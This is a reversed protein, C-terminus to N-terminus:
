FFAVLLSNLAKNLRLIGLPSCIDISSVSSPGFNRSARKLFSSISETSFAEELKLYERLTGPARTEAGVTDKDRPIASGITEPHTEQHVENLISLAKEVEGLYRQTKCVLYGFQSFKTLYVHVVSLKSKWIENNRRTLGNMRKEKISIMGTKVEIKAKENRLADRVFSLHSGSSVSPVDQFFPPMELFDLFNELFVWFFVWNTPFISKALIEKSLVFANPNLKLIKESIKGNPRAADIPLWSSKRLKKEKEKLTEKTEEFEKLQVDQVDSSRENESFGKPNEDWHDEMEKKREDRKSFSLKKEKFVIGSEMMFLYHASAREVFGSCKESRAWLRMLSIQAKRALSVEKTNTSNRAIEKLKKMSKQFQYRLNELKKEKIRMSFSLFLTWLGSNSWSLLLQAEIASLIDDSRGMEDLIEIKECLFFPDEKILKSKESFKQIIELKKEM